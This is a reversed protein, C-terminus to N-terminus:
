RTHELPRPKEHPSPTLFDLLSLQAKDSQPSPLPIPQYIAKMMELLFMAKMEAEEESLEAQFSEKWLRRFGQIDEPELKM